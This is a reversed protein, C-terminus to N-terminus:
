INNFALFSTNICAPHKNMVKVKGSYSDFHQPCEWNTTKILLLVM